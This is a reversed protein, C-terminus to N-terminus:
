SPEIPRAESWVEAFLKRLPAVLDPHRVRATTVSQAGTSADRLSILAEEEDRIMLKMPLTDTVRVQGGARMLPEYRRADRLGEPTYVVRVEVGREIAAIEMLNWRPRPQLFPPQLLEFLTVQSRSIVDELVETTPLRGSVAEIFDPVQVAPPATPRPLLRTLTEVHAQDREALAAREHDRHRLWNRLAVDPEVASYRRVRGGASRCFGRGELGGLAEYVKPRPVGARAAAEGATLETAGLIALYVRSENQTLGLAVLMRTLEASDVIVQSGPPQDDTADAGRSAQKRKPAPM